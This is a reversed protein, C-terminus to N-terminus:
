VKPTAARLDLISRAFPTLESHSPETTPQWWRNADRAARELVDVAARTDGPPQSSTRPWLHHCILTDVAKAAAYLPDDFRVASYKYAAWMARCAAWAREWSARTDTLAAPDALANATVEAREAYIPGAVDPQPGSTVTTNAPAFVRKEMWIVKNGPGAKGTAERVEHVEWGAERAVPRLTQLDRRLQTSSVDLHVRLSALACRGGQLLFVLRASRATPTM